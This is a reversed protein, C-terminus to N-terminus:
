EEVSRLVLDDKLREDVPRVEGNMYCWQGYTKDYKREWYAVERSSFTGKRTRRMIEYCGTQRTLPDQPRIM